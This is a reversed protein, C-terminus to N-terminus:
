AQVEDQKNSKFHNEASKLATIFDDEEIGNVNFYIYLTMALVYIVELLSYEESSFLKDIYAILEKSKFILQQERTMVYM